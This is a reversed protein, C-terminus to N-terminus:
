GVGWDFPSGVQPVTSGVPPESPVWHMYILSPDCGDDLTLAGEHM